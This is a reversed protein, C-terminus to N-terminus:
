TTGRHRLDHIENGTGRDEERNVNALYRLHKYFLRIKRSIYERDNDITNVSVTYEDNKYDHIVNIGLDDFLLAITKLGVCAVVDRVENDPVSIYYEACLRHILVVVQDFETVM